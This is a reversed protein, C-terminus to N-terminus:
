WLSDGQRITISWPKETIQVAGQEVLRALVKTVTVRTTGALCAIDYHTIKKSVALREGRLRQGFTEAYFVLTKRVREEAPLYNDLVLESTRQLKEVLDIFFPFLLNPTARLLDELEAKEIRCFVSQQLTELGMTYPVQSFLTVTGFFEGEKIFRTIRVRGHESSKSAMAAGKVLYYLYKSNEGQLCVIKRKKVNVVEGIGKISELDFAFGTM